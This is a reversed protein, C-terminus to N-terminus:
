VGTKLYILAQTIDEVWKYTDLRHFVNSSFEGLKGIAIIPIRCGIAIGQEVAKGESKATSFLIVAHAQLVGYVDQIACTKLFEEKEHEQGDGEYKWWKHTIRFGCDEFEKAREDMLHRDVWPAALYLYGNFNNM